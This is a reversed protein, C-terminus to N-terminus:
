CTLEAYDNWCIDPQAKVFTEYPLYIAQLFCGIWTLLIRVYFVLYSISWNFQPPTYNIPVTGPMVRVSRGTLQTKCRLWRSLHRQFKTSNTMYKRSLGLKHTTIMPLYPTLLSIVFDIVDRRCWSRTLAM